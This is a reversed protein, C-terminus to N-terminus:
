DANMWNIAADMDKFTKINAQTGAPLGFLSGRSSGEFLFAIKVEDWLKLMDLLIMTEERTFKGSVGRLDVLVADVGAKVRECEIDEIDNPIGLGDEHV